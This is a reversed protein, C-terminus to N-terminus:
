NGLWIIETHISIQIETIIMDAVLYCLSMTIVVPLIMEARSNVPFRLYRTKSEFEVVPLKDSCFTKINTLSKLKFENCLQNLDLRQQM